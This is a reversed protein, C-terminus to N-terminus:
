PARRRNSDTRPRSQRVGFFPMAEMRPLIDDADVTGDRATVSEVIHAVIARQHEMTTDRITQAMPLLTMAVNDFAIVNSEVPPPLEALRTELDSRQRRYDDADVNGM